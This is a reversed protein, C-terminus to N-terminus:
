YFYSLILPKLSETGEVWDNNADKLREISNKKRRASAFNHFFSTNRDGHQLRNARSRQAWYIEDQELLLKILNAMEKAKAESEDSIPGNMAKELERQAKRLHRKLKRLVQSDWAHLAAHMQGLRGLVGGEAGSAADWARQVEERFDTEMLWKAKFKKPGSGHSVVAEQYKTDLLIPRHDSRIYELHILKANPHTALWSGSAVARDLRERIRGRKWTFVDGSFGMDDLDCDVLADRFVQMYSQPRPNDGEKENSYLIENFDGMVVWPLTSSNKLERLKDWTKYRDEWRPEEYLGTFRWINNPGETIKMDIYNPASFIQEIKLEKRWLLMVGGSRGNSPNVIKFDM